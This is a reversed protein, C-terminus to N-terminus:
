EGCYECLKRGVPCWARCLGGPKAPWKDKEFAAELRAVRPMFSGWIEGLQSRDFLESTLKDYALWVYGTRVQELEPYIHFLLASFLKLQDIDSKPKGTKWDLAVGTNGVVVHVDIIGRVWANSADWETRDFGRTLAVQMEAIPKGIRELPAIFQEYHAFEPELPAGNIRAELAAHVTKGWLTAETDKEVVEKSVRTLYYRRPCTEFATLSSFSWPGM